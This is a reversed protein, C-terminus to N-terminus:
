DAKGQLAVILNQLDEPAQDRYYPYGQPYHLKGEIVPFEEFGHTNLFLDNGPVLRGMILYTPPEALDHEPFPRSSSPDGPYSCLTVGRVTVSGWSRHFTVIDGVAIPEIGRVVQRVKLHVLSAMQNTLPAWVPETAVIEGILVNKLKGATDSASHRSEAGAPGFGVGYSSLGEGPACKGSTGLRRVAEVHDNFREIYLEGARIQNDQSWSGYPATLLRTPILWPEPPRSMTLHTPDRSIVRPPIEDAAAIWPLFFLVSLTFRKRSPM